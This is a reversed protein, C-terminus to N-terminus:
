LQTTCMEISSTAVTEPRLLFLAFHSRIIIIPIQQQQQQKRQEQDTRLSNTRLELWLNRGLFWFQATDWFALTPMHLPFFQGLYPVPHARWERTATLTQGTPPLCCCALSTELYNGHTRSSCRVDFLGKIRGPWSARAFFACSQMLFLIRTQRAHTRVLLDLGIEFDHGSPVPWLSDSSAALEKAM